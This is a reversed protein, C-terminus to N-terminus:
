VTFLRLHENLLKLQLKCIISSPLNYNLFGEFPIHYKEARFFLSKSNEYLIWKNKTDEM